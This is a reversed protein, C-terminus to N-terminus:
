EDQPLQKHSTSLHWIFPMTRTPHHMRAKIGAGVVSWNTFSFLLNNIVNSQTGTGDSSSFLENSLSIPPHHLQRPHISSHNLPAKLWASATHVCSSFLLHSNNLTDMMGPLKWVVGRQVEGGGDGGRERPFHCLIPDLLPPTWHWLWWIHQGNPHTHNFYCVSINWTMTLLWVMNAFFIWILHIKILHVSPPPYRQWHTPSLLHYWARGKIQWSIALYM